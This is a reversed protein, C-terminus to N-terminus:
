GGERPAQVASDVMAGGETRGIGGTPGVRSAGEGPVVWKEPDYHALYRARTIWGNVMAWTMWRKEPRVAFYVHATVLGILAVGALGHIVYIAGWTGDSLLYPNRTWLPTDIRVMMLLGTAIAGLGATAALHHYLKHDFAYKGPARPAEGSGVGLAHKLEVMGEGLESPKVWMAWFDQWGFVHVVHYLISATLVVGAIWHVSVWPFQLGLVPVFATVLLVLMALAMTWHFARAAVGHRPVRASADGSEAGADAETNGGAKGSGSRTMMFAMHALVFVASAVVALWVLDWGIGLLVDQGWPNPATRLIEM